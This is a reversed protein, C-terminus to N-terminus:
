RWRRSPWDPIWEDPISPQHRYVTRWSSPVDDDILRKLADRTPALHLPSLLVKWIHGLDRDFDLREALWFTADEFLPRLDETLLDGYRVPIEAHEKGIRYVPRAAAHAPRGRYWLHSALDRLRRMTEPTDDLGALYRGMTCLWDEFQDRFFRHSVFGISFEYLVFTQGHASYEWRDSKEYLPHKQFLPLDNSM